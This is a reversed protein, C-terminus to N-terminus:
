QATLKDFLALLEKMKIPATVTAHIDSTKARAIWSQQKPSLLLVAPVAILMSWLGYRELGWHAALIPVLALQLGVSVM